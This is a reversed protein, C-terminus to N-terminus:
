LKDLLGGTVDDGAGALLAKSKDHMKDKTEKIFLVILLLVIVTASGITAFTGAKGLGENMVPFSFSVVVNFAWQTANAFGLAEQRVNDPFIETCLVFFLSGPGAEFGLIFVMLSPIAFTAVHEPYYQYAGAIAFMALAMLFTSVIMLVRRGVREVLAFSVFTTLMNWTGVVFLTMVLPNSVGADEFIYPAYFIIANIGTLQNSAALIIAIFISWKESSLLLQWGTKRLGYGTLEGESDRV